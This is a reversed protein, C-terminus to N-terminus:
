FNPGYDHMAAQMLRMEHMKIAQMVWMQKVCGDPGEVYETPNGGLRVVVASAAIQYQQLEWDQVAM